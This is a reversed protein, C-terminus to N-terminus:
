QKKANLCRIPQKIEPSEFISKQNAHNEKIGGGIEFTVM